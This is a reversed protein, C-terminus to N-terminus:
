GTAAAGAGKHLSAIRVFGDIVKFPMMEAISGFQDAGLGGDTQAPTFFPPVSRM